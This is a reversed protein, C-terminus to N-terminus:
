PKHRIIYIIKLQPDVYVTIIVYFSGFADGRKEMFDKHIEHSHLLIRTTMCYQFTELPLLNYWVRNRNGFYMPFPAAPDVHIRVEDTGNAGM